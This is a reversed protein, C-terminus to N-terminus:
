HKWESEEAKKCWLYHFFIRQSFMALVNMGITVSVIQGWNSDFNVKM